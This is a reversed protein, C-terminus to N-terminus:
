KKYKERWGKLKYKYDIIFIDINRDKDKDFIKDFNKNSQQIVNHGINNKFFDHNIQRGYRDEDHIGEGFSNELRRKGLISKKFMNREMNYQFKYQKYKYTEYNYDDITEVIIGNQDNITYNINQFQNSM